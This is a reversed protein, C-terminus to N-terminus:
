RGQRKLLRGPRAPTSEGADIVLTGNVMLYDVGEAYRLPDGFDARDTLRAPDFVVLDAAMGPAIVGRDYLGLRHAALSTMRRVAEELPIVRDERVYKAIVRPFAGFARPHAAAAM